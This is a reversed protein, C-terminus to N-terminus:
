PHYDPKKRPNREIERDTDMHRVGEKKEQSRKTPSKIQHQGPTHCFVLM